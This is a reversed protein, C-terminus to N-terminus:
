STGHCCSHLCSRMVGVVVATCLLALSSPCRTGFRLLSPRPALFQPQVAVSAIETRLTLSLLVACRHDDYHLDLLHLVFCAALASAQDVATGPDKTIRRSENDVKNSHWAERINIFPSHHGQPDDPRSEFLGIKLALKSRIFEMGAQHINFAQRNKRLSEENPSRAGVIFSVHQVRGM